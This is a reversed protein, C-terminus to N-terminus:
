CYSRMSTLNPLGSQLSSPVSLAHASPVHHTTRWRSKAAHSSEVNQVFLSLLISSDLMAYLGKPRGPAPAGKRSGFPRATLSRLLHVVCGDSHERFKTTSRSEECKGEHKENQLGSIRM